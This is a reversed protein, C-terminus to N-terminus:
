CGHSWTLKCSSWSKHERQHLTCLIFEILDPWILYVPLISQYLNSRYPRSVDYESLFIYRDHMEQIFMYQRWLSVPLVELLPFVHYGASHGAPVPCLAQDKGAFTTMLLMWIATRTWQAWENERYDMGVRHSCLTLPVCLLSGAKQQYHAPLYELSCDRFGTRAAHISNHHYHLYAPSYELCLTGWSCFTSLGLICILACVWFFQFSPNKVSIQVGM